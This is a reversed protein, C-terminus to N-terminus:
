KKRVLLWVDSYQAYSNRIEAIKERVTQEDNNSSVSVRFLGSENELIVPKFGENILQARFNKANDLIKFSGLIVYYSYVSVDANDVVKVREERMVVERPVPATTAKPKPTTSSTTTTAKPAAKEEKVYPSKSDSFSSSGKPSLAGCSGLLVLAAVGSVIRFSKM